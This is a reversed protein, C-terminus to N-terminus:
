GTFFSPSLPLHLIFNFNCLGAAKAETHASGDFHHVVQPMLGILANIHDSFQDVVANENFAQFFVSNEAQFVLRIDFFKRRLLIIDYKNDARVADCLLQGFAKRSLLKLDHVRGARKHLTNMLDGLFVRAVTRRNNNDAVLVMRLNGAFIIFNRCIPM